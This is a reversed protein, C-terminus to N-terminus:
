LIESRENLIKITVEGDQRYEITKHIRRLFAKWTEPRSFQIDQYQESLPINSTIYIKSYAAVRDNYRAPLYIPYCDMYNLMEEVPIQSSFEEFVLVNQGFYADFSIGRGTRYNTIRCIDRPNHKAYIGRTKGAGSVGFVYSVEVNRNETTYKESLMMQRLTDIDRIRFAFNPMEDIIEATRKDDQINKILRSMQPSKESKETPMEGYEYFSDKIQTEAKASDAWKGSKQIYDRNEQATGYSRELHATPFRNKLTNFRVPSHTHLFAHTHYTGNEGIEDSLCFYIPFFRTLIEVMVDRSLGYEAPNNITISWKRSQSNNNM